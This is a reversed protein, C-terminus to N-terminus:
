LALRVNTDDKCVCQYYKDIHCQGVYGPSWKMNERQTILWNM